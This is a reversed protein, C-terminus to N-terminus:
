RGKAAASTATVLGEGPTWKDYEMYRATKKAVELGCLRSVMHLSGDIGASVGATTIYPGNDVWRTNDHVKIQPAKKRFNEIAGHWTTAEMGDLLGTKALAFAGTCVTLVHDSSKATKEIWAMMEPDRTVKSSNGGPIVLIDPKPSNEISFEPTCKLFGQSIIPEGTKGVTYVEFPADGDVRTAAFVEGPGAFDLLEVGDYIVIAVKMKQDAGFAGLTILACFTWVFLKKM